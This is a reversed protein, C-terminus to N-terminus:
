EDREERTFPALWYTFQDDRVIFGRDVLEDRARIASSKSLGIIRKFSALSQPEHDKLLMYVAKSSVRGLRRVRAYHLRDAVLRARSVAMSALRDLVEDLDDVEGGL